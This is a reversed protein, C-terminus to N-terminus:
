RSGPRGAKDALDILEQQSHVGCKSLISRAHAHVTNLAIGLEDRIYPRSRGCLLLAAVETERETLGYTKQLNRARQHVLQEYLDDVEALGEVQGEFVPAPGQGAAAGASADAEDATGCTARISPAGESAPGSTLGAALADGGALSGAAAMAAAGAAGEAADGAAGAAMGGSCAAGVRAGGALSRRRRVFYWDPNYGVMGITLVALGTVALAICFVNGQRLNMAALLGVGCGLAIGLGEAAMVGLFAVCARGGVRRLYKTMSIWVAMQMGFMGTHIVAYVAVRSEFSGNGLCLVVLNLMVLPMMWRYAMSINVYRMLRMAVSFLVAAVVFASAFSILYRWYRNYAGIPADVVRFFAVLFWLVGVVAVVGKLSHLEPLACGKYPEARREHSAIWGRDPDLSDDRLAFWMSLPPLVCAVALDVLGYLKVPLTASYLALAVVFGAVVDFEVRAENCRVLRTGWVVGMLMLAVGDLIGAIAFMAWFTEIVAYSLWLCINGAVACGAAAVGWRTNVPLPVRRMVALVALAALGETAGAVLWIFELNYPVFSGIAMGCGYLAIYNWAMYLAFGINRKGLLALNRGFEGM